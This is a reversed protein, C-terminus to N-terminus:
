LQLFLVIILLVLVSSIIYFSYFKWFDRFRDVSSRGLTEPAVFKKGSKLALVEEKKFRLYTGGLRYGTLKGKKVLQQVESPKVGLYHQVEEETLMAM